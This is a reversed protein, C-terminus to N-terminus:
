RRAPASPTPPASGNPTDRSGPRAKRKERVGGTTNGEAEIHPMMELSTIYDMEIQWRNSRLYKPVVSPPQVMTGKKKGLKCVTYDLKKTKNGKPELRPTYM